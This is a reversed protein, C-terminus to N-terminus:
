SDQEANIRSPITTNESDNIYYALIRMRTFVTNYTQGGKSVLAILRYEEVVENSYGEFADKVASGKASNFASLKDDISSLAMLKKETEKEYDVFGLAATLLFSKMCRKNAEIYNISINKNDTISNIQHILLHSQQEAESSLTGCKSAYNLVVKDTTGFGIEKDLLGLISYFVRYFQRRNNNFGMKKLFLDINSIENLYKDLPSDPISNIIEGARLREQNQVYRFYETIEEDSSNAINTISINYSNIRKQIIEPLDDFKIRINTKSGNKNIKRKLKEIKKDDTKETKTIELIYEIIKFASDGQIIHNGSIFDRISTLRQQGDVVELMKSNINLDTRVRLSINGIPYRRIISYWLKDIFDNGWIFGRQYPPQLDISDNMGSDSIQDMITQIPKSEYSFIMSM